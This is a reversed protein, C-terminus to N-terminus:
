RAVRWVISKRGSELTERQGSDGLFGADVLEKRRTRLGSASQSPWGARKRRLEYHRAAKQDTGGSEDFLRFLALVAQQSDRLQDETISAAAAHSTDPDTRRAHATTRTAKPQEGNMRTVHGGACVYFREGLANETRFESERRCAGCKVTDTM